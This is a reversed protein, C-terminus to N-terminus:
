PYLERMKKLFEGVREAALANPEEETYTAHESVDFNDVDETAAHTLGLERKAQRVIVRLISLWGNATTPSYDGAEILVAIGARWAEVHTVHLRDIFVDGFGPVTTGAKEGYTGAILHELTSRWRTKGASSRIKGGASKKKEFLDVAYDAFRVNSRPARVVGDRVRAREEELWRLAMLEDAGPLVRRIEKLQGTTPDTVRVRVVHGGDRRKWVGPIRTPKVWNRWRKTWNSEETKGM